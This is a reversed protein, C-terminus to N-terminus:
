LNQASGIGAGPSTSSGAFQTGGQFDGTIQNARRALLLQAGADGNFQAALLQDQTPKDLGAVDLSTVDGLGALHTFGSGAQQANIGQQALGMAAQTSIQGFGTLDAQAAVQAANFKQELTTVAQTPDLFIAATHGLGQGPFLREVEAQLQPTGLAAASAIQLRHELETPAVNNILGNAIDQPSDYFGTPMGYAHLLQGWTQEYSMYQAETIAQGRAALVQMAPFRDKYQQTQRLELMIQEESEGAQYKAWAWQGLSGLSFQDLAGQLIAKASSQGPTLGPGTSSSPSTGFNLGGTVTTPSGSPPTLTGSGTGLGGASPLTTTGSGTVPTPVATSGPAVAM